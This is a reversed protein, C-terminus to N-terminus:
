PTRAKVLAKLEEHRVFWDFKSREQSKLELERLADLGITKEVLRLFETQYTDVTLHCQADLCWLNTLESRTHSFRRRIIHCCQFPGNVDGCRECRGRSVVLKRVLDDCLRKKSSATAKRRPPM